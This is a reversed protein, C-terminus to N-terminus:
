ESSSFHEEAWFDRNDLMRSADHLNRLIVKLISDSEKRVQNVRSDSKSNTTAFCGWEDAM